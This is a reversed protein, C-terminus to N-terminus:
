VLVVRPQWPGSSGGRPVLRGSFLAWELDSFALCHLSVCKIMEPGSDLWVQIWFLGGSKETIQAISEKKHQFATQPPNRDNVGSLIRVFVIVINLHGFHVLYWLFM